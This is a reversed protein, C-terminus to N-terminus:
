LVWFFNINQHLFFIKLIILFHDFIIIENKHVIIMTQFVTICEIANHPRWLPPPSPTAFAGLLTKLPMSHPSMRFSNPVLFLMKGKKQIHFELYQYSHFLPGHSDWQRV